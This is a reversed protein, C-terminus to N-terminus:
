AADRAGDAANNDGAIRLANEAARVANLINVTDGTEMADLVATRANDIQDQDNDNAANGAARFATIVAQAAAVARAHNPANAVM